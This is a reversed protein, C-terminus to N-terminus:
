LAQQQMAMQQQMAAQQQQWMARQQQAARQQMVVQQPTVLPTPICRASGRGPSGGMAGFDASLQSLDGGMSRLAAATPASAMAKLAGMAVKPAPPPAPAAAGGKPATLDAFNVVSEALSELSHPDKPPPPGAEAPGPLATGGGASASTSASAAGKAGDALIAELEKKLTAAAAYDERAVAAAIAERKAAQLQSVAAAAAAEQKAAELETKLSAAAAYDEKSVAAAIAQKLAAVRADETSAGAPAPAFGPPPFSTPPFSPLPSGGFSQTPAADLLDGVRAPPAAPPAAPPPPAPPAFPLQGGTAPFLDAPPAGQSAFADQPSPAFFDAQTGRPQGQSPPFTEEPAFPDGQTHGVESALSPPPTPAHLSSAAFPDLLDVPTANAPALAKANAQSAAAARARVSPAISIPAGEGGGGAQPRARGETPRAGGLSGIRVTGLTSAPEARSAGGCGGLLNAEQPPPAGGGAPGGAPRIRVAM